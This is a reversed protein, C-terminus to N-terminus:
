NGPNALAQRLSQQALSLMSKRAGQSVPLLAQRYPEAPFGLHDAELTIQDVADEFRTQAWADWLTPTESSQNDDSNEDSQHPLRAMAPMGKYRGIFTQAVYKAPWQLGKELVDTTSKWNKEWGATLQKASVHSGMRALADEITNKLERQRVQVNRAELHALTHRNALAQISGVLQEFDDDVADTVPQKCITRFLVPDAFGSSALLAKLDDIQSPDGRDWQNMVFVWGHGTGQSQLFRWGREDRYREPSVVYVLLDVHPLWQEVIHRNNQEVSDIDPMDIWAVDKWQPETHRAVRIQDVPLENPLNGLQIADHIYLTVERSTPREVGTKAVDEGALRNLLSSKGVGTGGFFAVVLPKGQEGDFVQQSEDKGLAQLANADAELLWGDAAAAQMWQQTKSLLDSFNYAM